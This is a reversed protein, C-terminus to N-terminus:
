GPGSSPSLVLERSSVCMKEYDQPSFMGLGHVTVELIRKEVKQIDLACIGM